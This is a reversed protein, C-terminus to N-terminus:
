QFEQFDLFITLNPCSRLLIVHNDFLIAESDKIHEIHNHDLSFASVQVMLLRFSAKAMSAVLLAIM